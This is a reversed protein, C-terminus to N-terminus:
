KPYLNHNDTSILKCNKNAKGEIIKKEKKAKGWTCRQNINLNCKKCEKKEIVKYM